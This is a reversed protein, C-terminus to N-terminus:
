AYRLIPRPVLNILPSIETPPHEVGSIRSTVVAVGLSGLSFCNFLSLFNYLVEIRSRELQNQGSTQEEVNFFEGHVVPRADAGGDKQLAARQGTHPAVVGLALRGQRLGHAARGALAQRAFCIGGFPQGSQEVALRGDELGVAAPHGERAPLREQLRVKHGLHDVAQVALVAAHVHQQVSGTVAAFFIQTRKSM